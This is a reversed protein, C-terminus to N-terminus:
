PEPRLCIQALVEAVFVQDVADMQPYILLMICGDQVAESHPLPMRRPLDRYPEERHMCMAGRRTTVGRDLMAQM